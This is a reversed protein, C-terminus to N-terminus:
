RGSGPTMTIQSPPVILFPAGGNKLNDQSFTLIVALAATILVVTIWLTPGTANAEHPEYGHQDSERRGRNAFPPNDSM